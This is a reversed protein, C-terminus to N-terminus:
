SWNFTHGLRRWISQVPIKTIEGGGEETEAYKPKLNFIRTQNQAMGTGFRFQNLQIQIQESIKTTNACVLQLKGVVLPLQNEWNQTQSKEVQM